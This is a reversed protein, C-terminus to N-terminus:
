LAAVQLQAVQGVGQAGEWAIGETESTYRTGWETSTQGWLM